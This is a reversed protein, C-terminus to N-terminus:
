PQPLDSPSLATRFLAYESREVAHRIDVNLDGSPRTRKSQWDDRCAAERVADAITVLRCDPHRRHVYFEDVSVLTRYEDDVVM